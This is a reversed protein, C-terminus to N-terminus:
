INMKRLIGRMAQRRRKLYKEGLSPKIRRTKDLLDDTIKFGVEKMLVDSLLKQVQKKDECWGRKASIKRIKSYSLNYKCAIDKLSIMSNLLFERKAKLWDIKIKKM